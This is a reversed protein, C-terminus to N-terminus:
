SILEGNKMIMKLRDSNFWYPIESLSQIDWFLIDANFGEKILGIQDERNLSKAAIYTSATFAQNISLGCYLCSLAMMIPMSYITCSGPNYDSAIAVDCGLHVMRRGNAYTNLGLFLTTGPLLTAVVKNKAMNTLGEDNSMMLHDASIAGLEGAIFAGNSDRFEDVHLKIDLGFNKATDAIKLVQNKNFYGVEFFIDCFEALNRNSVEPIMENCILDIYSDQKIGIPFDHAGMFTPILDIYNKQDLEKIVELSKIENEVDLGYGSKVEITTTGSRIINDLYKQCQKILEEKSAKRLSSITSKIGGGAAAIDLYDLGNIRSEFDNSRNSSFILHSHSDIFGPTIVCGKADVIEDAVVVDDNIKKILKDDIVISNAEIEIVDKKILDYTIIKKFNIIKKIM